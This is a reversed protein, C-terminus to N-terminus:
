GRLTPRLAELRAVITELDAQQARARDLADLLERPELQGDHLHRSRYRQVEREILEGLAESIPRSGIAGRFDAWVDDSVSVRAM